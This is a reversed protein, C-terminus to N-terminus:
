LDETKKPVKLLLIPTEKMVHSFTAGYIDLFLIKLGWGTTPSHCSPSFWGGSERMLDYVDGPCTLTSLDYNESPKLMVRERLSEQAGQKM